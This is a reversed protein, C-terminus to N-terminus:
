TLKDTIANLVKFGKNTVLIYNGKKYILKNNVLMKLEDKKKELLNYNFEKQIANLNLKGTRLNLMIRELNKESQTLIYSDEYDNGSIYKEMCNTNSFRNDGIKSHAALGLGLYDGNTWYVMNHKSQKGKLAFNSVEYRKYGNKKLTKVTYDYFRVADDESPLVLKGSEIKSFLPTDEEVILGYASISTPNFSLAFNLTNKVDNLTQSPLALMIDINLDLGNDKILKASKEFMKKDHPRNLLKLINDNSSQLGMSIRNIGLSKYLEIKKETVSDPNCEITYEVAKVNFCKKILGNTKKIYKENVFSPTGGGIYITKVIYDTYKKSVKKIEEFLKEFYKQQYKEGLPFSTFNCYICKSKCFPIHIYLSLNKM